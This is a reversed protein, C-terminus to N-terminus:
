SKGNPFETSDPITICIVVSKHKCYIKHPLEPPLNIVQRPNLHHVENSYEVDMEGVAVLLIETEPHSHLNIVTNPELYAIAISAIESENFLGTLECKGTTCILEMDKGLRHKTLDALTNLRETLQRLKILNSQEM